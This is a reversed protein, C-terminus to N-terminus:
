DMNQSNKAARRLAPEMASRIDPAEAASLRVAGAGPFPCFVHTEIVNMKTIARFVQAIRF